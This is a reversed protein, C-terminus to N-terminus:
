PVVHATMACGPLGAQVPGMQGWAQPAPSCLLTTTHYANQDTEQQKKLEPPPRGRLHPGRPHGRHERLQQDLLERAAERRMRLWLKHAERDLREQHDEV